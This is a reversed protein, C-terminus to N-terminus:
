RSIDMEEIFDLVIPYVEDPAHRGVLLDAHGYDARDGFHQGLTRFRVDPTELRNCLARVTPVPVIRDAQGALLLTPARIRNLDHEYAYPGVPAGEGVIARALEQVLRVPVDHIGERTLRLMVQPECNSVNLLLNDALRSSLPMVRGAVDLLRRLFFRRSSAPTLNAAPILHAALQVLRKEHTGLNQFLAGVLPTGITTLSQLERAARTAVSLLLMGGMSHGIAHLAQAGTLELVTAIATPVDREAFDAFGWESPPKAQPDAPLTAGAGRLELVFVEFGRARAARALSYREDLDFHLRNAAIGHVMLIPMRRTKIVPSFRHLALAWGDETVARWIKENGESM